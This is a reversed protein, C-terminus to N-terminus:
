IKEMEKIVDLIESRLQRLHRKAEKLAIEDSVIEKFFYNWIKKEAGAQEISLLTVLETEGYSGVDATKSEIKWSNVELKM